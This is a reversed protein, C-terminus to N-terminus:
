NELLMGIAERHIIAAVPMSSFITKLPHWTFCFIGGKKYLMISAPKVSVCSPLQDFNSSLYWHFM